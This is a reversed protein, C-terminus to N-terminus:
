GREEEDHPTVPEGAWAATILTRLDPGTVPRPNSPPALPLVREVALDIGSEPMGLERLSKAAELGRGLDYLGRAAPAGGLADSVRRAADLASAANFDVVYPLVVGHTDAHSLSFAGGLVHCIKHHLGSGASAFAVAALYAGYLMSDRADLDDADAITARLGTVLARLGETGWAVNIPDARPAWFGDVAHAVANLGSASTLSRPLSAFLMADYVVAVPLVRPDSGTTKRDGETQGWVDTAESGAFTTPVAIVPISTDRAVFKALGTASGGGISVIADVAEDRARAVAANGDAVPVHQTVGDIRAVVPVRAAIGDALDAAFSDAIVFVRTASLSDLATAVNDVAGGRGFLVRQAPTRHDFAKVISGGGIEGVNASLGAM